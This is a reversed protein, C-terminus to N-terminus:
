EYIFKPKNDRVFYKQYKAPFGMLRACELPTLRRPRKIGLHKQDIVLIVFEHVEILCSPLMPQPIHDTVYLRLQDNNIAKGTDRRLALVRHFVSPLNEFEQDVKRNMAVAAHQEQMMESFRRGILQGAHADGHVVELTGRVDGLHPASHKAQADLLSRTSREVKVSLSEQVHALGVQIHLCRRHVDIQDDIVDHPNRYQMGVSLFGLGALAPDNEDLGMQDAALQETM